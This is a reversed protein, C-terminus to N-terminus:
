KLITEAYISKKWIMFGKRKLVALFATYLLRGEGILVSTSLALVSSLEYNYKTFLVFSVYTFLALISFSVFRGFLNSKLIFLIFTSNSHELRKTVTVDIVNTLWGALLAWLLIIWFPAVTINDGEIVSLIAYALIEMGPRQGLPTQHKDAEEKTSGLLVIRGEILDRHQELENWKVVPFVTNKYNIRFDKGQPIATGMKRSVQVPFSYLTDKGQLFYTPYTNMSGRPSNIVNTTGETQHTDEAFFSHVAGGFTKTAPEPDILKYALVTNEPAAFFAETLMEDAEMNGKLGEFIIDVGLVAPEMSSIQEVVHAIKDRDRSSLETMDVLTIQQNEQPTGSHQIRYYIDNMSFGELAYVVPNLFELNVTVLVLLSIVLMTIVSIIIHDIHFINRLLLRMFFLYYRYKLNFYYKIRM